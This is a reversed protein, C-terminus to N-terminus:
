TRGAVYEKFADAELAIERLRHKIVDLTNIIGKLQGDEVIPVHRIRNTGMLEYVKSLPESVDCTLVDTTMVETVPANLITSGKQNITRLVDGGSVIGLITRNDDTVVVASVEDLELQDMIEQVTAKPSTTSVTTGKDKLLSRVTM